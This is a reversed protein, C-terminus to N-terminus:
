GTGRAADGVAHGRRARNRVASFILGIIFFTLTFNALVIAILSRVMAIGRRRLQCGIATPPVSSLGGVPRVFNIARM